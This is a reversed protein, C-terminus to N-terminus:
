YVCNTVQLSDKETLNIACSADNVTRYLILALAELVFDLLTFGFINNCSLSLLLKVFTMSIYILRNVSGIVMAKRVTYETIYLSYLNSTDCCGM